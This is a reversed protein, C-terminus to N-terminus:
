NSNSTTKNYIHIETLLLIVLMLSKKVLHVSICSLKLCINSTLTREFWPTAIVRNHYMFILHHYLFTSSNACLSIFIILETSKVLSFNSWQFVTLLPWSKRTISPESSSCECALLLILIHHILILLRLLLVSGSFHSVIFGILFLLYILIGATMRWTCSASARARFPVSSAIAAWRVAGFGQHSTMLVQVISVRMLRWTYIVSLTLEILVIISAASNLVSKHLSCSKSSDLVQISRSKPIVAWKMHDLAAEWLFIIIDRPQWM